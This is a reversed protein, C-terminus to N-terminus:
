AGLMRNAMISEHVRGQRREQRDLLRRRVAPLYLAALAFILAGWVLDDVSAGRVGDVIQVAGVVTFLVLAATSFWSRPRRTWDPIRAFAATLEDGLQVAPRALRPDGVARGARLAKRIERRDQPSLGGRETGWASREQRVQIVFRLTTGVVLGVAIALVLDPFLTM